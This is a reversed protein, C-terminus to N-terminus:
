LRNLRYTMFPKNRITIFLYLVLLIIVALAQVVKGVTALCVSIFVMAVKRFMIVTEWYYLQSKYGKYLFGM